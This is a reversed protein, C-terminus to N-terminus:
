PKEPPLSQFFTAWTMTVAYGDDYAKRVRRIAEHALSGLKGNWLDIPQMKQARMLDLLLEDILKYDEHSVGEPKATMM